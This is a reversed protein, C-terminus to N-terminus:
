APPSRWGVSRAHGQRMPFVQLTNAAELRGQPLFPFKRCVDPSRLRPLPHGLRLLSPLPYFPLLRSIARSGMSCSRPPPPSPLRGFPARLAWALGLSLTPPFSYCSFLSRLSLRSHSVRQSPAAFDVVVVVPAFYSSRRWSISSQDGWHSCGSNADLCAVQSVLQFRSSTTTPTWGAPEWTQNNTKHLEREENDVLLRLTYKMKPVTQLTIGTHHRLDATHASILTFCPMHDLYLSPTHDPMQWM